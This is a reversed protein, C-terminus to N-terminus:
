TGERIQWPLAANAGKVHYHANNDRCWNCYDVSHQAALLLDAPYGAPLAVPENVALGRQLSQPLTLLGACQPAVDDQWRIEGVFWLRHIAPLQWFSLGACFTRVSHAMRATARTVFVANIELTVADWLTRMRTWESVVPDWLDGIVM